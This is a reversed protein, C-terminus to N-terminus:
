PYEAIREKCRDCIFIHLPFHESKSSSFPLDAKLTEGVPIIPLGTGNSYVHGFLFCIIRKM